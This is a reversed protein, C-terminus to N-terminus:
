LKCHFSSRVLSMYLQRAHSAKSILSHLNKEKAKDKCLTPCPNKGEWGSSLHNHNLVM